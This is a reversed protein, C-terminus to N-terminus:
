IIFSDTKIDMEFTAHYRIVNIDNYEKLYIIFFISIHANYKFTFIYM